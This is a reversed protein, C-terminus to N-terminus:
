RGTFTPPRKEMFATVAETLDDSALQAANWTAVYDLGQAVTRGENARLVAKTGQVALPSNAVIEGALIRASKLVGDPDAAVDNVLGIEKAREASIDKATLALENLHGASLISPLRQLSGLDAVIAMKAERVSFIADASALRIDCAAILDVGGGICYGHVAAIVPKPCDAVATIADQLQLINLRARRGREAPSLPAAGSPGSPAGSGGSTLMEGMAKLDLGVSFHPGKAALVVVRVAADTSVAEIARPLDRWLDTGMANRAEPRDLWVTAVTDEVEISLVPSEFSAIDGM